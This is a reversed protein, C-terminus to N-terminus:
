QSTTTAFPLAFPLAGLVALLLYLRVTGAALSPRFNSHVNSHVIGDRAYSYMARQSLDSTTRKLAACRKKGQFRASCFIKGETLSPCRSVSASPVLHQVWLCIFGKVAKVSDLAPNNTLNDSVSSGKEAAQDRGPRMTPQPALNHRPGPVAHEGYQQQGGALCGQRPQRRNHFSTPSVDRRLRQASELLLRAARLLWSL